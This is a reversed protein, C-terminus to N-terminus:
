GGMFANIVECFGDVFHDAHHEDSIMECREALM